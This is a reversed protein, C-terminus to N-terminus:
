PWVAIAPAFFKAAEPLIPYSIRFFGYAGMKLLVGALLVSAPTPAEVHADPLWTHFPFVPVKVAFGLFLAALIINQFVRAFNGNQRILEVIDFTHPSSNFYLALIGLLM